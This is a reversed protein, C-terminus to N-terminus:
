PSQHQSFQVVLAHWISGACCSIPYSYCTVMAVIVHTLMNNKTPFLHVKLVRKTPNQMSFINNILDTQFSQQKYFSIYNFIESYNINCLFKEKYFFKVWVNFSNWYIPPLIRFSFSLIKRFNRELCQLKIKKIKSNLYKLRKM